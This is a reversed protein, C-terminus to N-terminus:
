LLLACLTLYLGEEPPWSVPEPASALLPSVAPVEEFVPPRELSLAPCPPPESSPKVGMGAALPSAPCGPAHDDRDENELPPLPVEKGTKLFDALLRGAPSSWTCACIGPPMLLRVTLLVLLIRYLTSVGAERWYLEDGPSM